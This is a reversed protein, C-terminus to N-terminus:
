EIGRWNDINLGKIFKDNVDFIRTTIDGQKYRSDKNEHLAIRYCTVKNEKKGMIYDYQIRVVGKNKGTLDKCAESMRFYSDYDSLCLCDNNPLRYFIRKIAKKIPINLWESEYQNKGGVFNSGDQFIITFLPLGHNKNDTM